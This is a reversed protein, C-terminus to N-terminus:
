TVELVADIELIGILDSDKKIVGQFYRGKAGKINSPPPMVDQRKVTIVDYIKDVLLGVFEDNWKVITIRSDEDIKVPAMELKRGLDIVTVIDGRLNMIGKIYEQSLPVQTINMSKNIEQVHQIDIGCLVDGIQFCTVQMEANQTGTNKGFM